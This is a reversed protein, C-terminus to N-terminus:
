WMHGCHKCKWSKGIKNSALGLAGVSVVRNLATIQEKDTSGCSPCRVPPNIMADYRQKVAEQKRQQVQAERYQTEGMELFQNYKDLSPKYDNHWYMRHFLLVVPGIIFFTSYKGEDGFYVLLFWVVLIIVTWVIGNVSYKPREPLKISALDNRHQQELSAIEAQKRALELRENEIHKFHEAICFGCSPCSVASDSVNEKGCEPCKILAM